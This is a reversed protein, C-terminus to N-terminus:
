KKKKQQRLMKALDSPRPTDVFGPRRQAPRRPRGYQSDCTNTNFL